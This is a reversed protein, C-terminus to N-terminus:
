KNKFDETKFAQKGDFCWGNGLYICNTDGSVGMDGFVPPSNRKESYVWPEFRKISDSITDIFKGIVLGSTYPPLRFRKEVDTFKVTCSKFRFLLDSDDEIYLQIKFETEFEKM